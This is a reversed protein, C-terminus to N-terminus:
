PPRFCIGLCPCAPTPKMAHITQLRHSYMHILFEKLHGYPDDAPPAQIVKVTNSQVVYDLKTQSTTVGKLCFHSEAHVLLTEFSDPWFPPLKVAVANFIDATTLWTTSDQLVAPDGPM